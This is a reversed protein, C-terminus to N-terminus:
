VSRDLIGKSDSQEIAIGLWAEILALMATDSVRWAISKMLERHAVTDFYSGLNADVRQLLGHM